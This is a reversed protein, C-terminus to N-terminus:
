GLIARLAELYQATMRELGFAAEARQRAGQSFADWNALIELSADVLPEIQPPQLRWPDAGYPVVRGALPTVIEGLAGTDFGAVPLGCALAEIVANPCAPHLEASFLLHSSRDLYAIREPSVVGVWNLTVDKALSSIFAQEAAPVEGVVWLEVPRPAREQLARTLRVASELGLVSGGRLHGEVVLVRWREAPREHMGFPAFQDLDVGNYIVTEWKEGQGYVRQWWTRAFRSQYVVGDALFRRIFALNLNAYEARLAHRLGQFRRRHIWNMGDLRQLIRLGRQRARWLVGVHRTGGILLIAQCGPDEPDHHVVVGQARLGAMLRRQFSTPGGLNDLKPWICINRVVSEGM